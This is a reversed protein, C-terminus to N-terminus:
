VSKFVDSSDPSPLGTSGCPLLQTSSLFVTGKLSIHKRATVAHCGPLLPPDRGQALSKQPGGRAVGDESPDTPGHPPAWRSGMSEWQLGCEPFRTGWVRWGLYGSGVELALLPRKWFGGEQSQGTGRTHGGVPRFPPWPHLWPHFSLYTRVAQNEGLRGDMWTRFESGLNEM